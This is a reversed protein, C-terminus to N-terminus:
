AGSRGCNEAEMEEAEDLSPLGFQIRALALASRLPCSRYLPRSPLVSMIIGGLPPETAPLPELPVPAPPV